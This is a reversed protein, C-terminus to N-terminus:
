LGVCSYRESIEKLRKSFDERAKDLEKEYERKTVELSQNRYKEHEFRFQTALQITFEINALANEVVKSETEPTILVEYSGEDQFGEYFCKVFISGTHGMLHIVVCPEGVMPKRLSNLRWYADNMRMFQEHTM